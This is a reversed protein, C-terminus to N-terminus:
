AGHSPVDGHPRGCSGEVPAHTTPSAVNWAARRSQGRCFQRQDSASRAIQRRITLVCEGPTRWGQRWAPHSLLISLDSDIPRSRCRCTRNQPNDKLVPGVPTHSCATKAPCAQSSYAAQPGAGPYAHAGPDAAHRRAAALQTKRREACPYASVRLSRALGHACGHWGPERGVSVAGSRGNQATTM